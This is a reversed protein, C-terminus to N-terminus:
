VCRFCRFHGFRGDLSSAFNKPDNCGSKKATKATKTKAITTKFACFVGNHEPHVSNWERSYCVCVCLARRGYSCVRTAKQAFDAVSQTKIFAHENTHCVCASCALSCVLISIGETTVICQRISNSYFRTQMSCAITDFVRVRRGDFRRLEGTVTATAPSSCVGAPLSSAPVFLTLPSTSDQTGNRRTQQLLRV